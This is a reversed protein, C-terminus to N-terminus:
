GRYRPRVCESFFDDRSSGDSQLGIAERELELCRKDNEERSLEPLIHGTSIHEWARVLRGALERQYQEAVRRRYESVRLSPRREPIPKAVIQHIMLVVKEDGIQEGLCWGYLSLQDAWTASIDEMYGADIEFGHYNLPQYLNHSTNHSKNPAPLDQGTKKCRKTLAEGDRCLMYGKTPSTASNSCYGNVKFDAVVHVPGPLVFRCDPKGTFPVGLIEADVTFEFRPPETSRQLLELLRDFMGSYQYCEFIYEGEGRAWDRNHPEVQAEFLADYSYAPNSNGFLAHYLSSKVRADFASGAAAPREQPIRPARVDCLYKTYYEEPNKEWLTFASYSLQSPTRM